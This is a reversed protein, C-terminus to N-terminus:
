AGGIPAPVNQSIAQAEALTKATQAAVPAADLVNGMMAQAEAAEEEQAMVEPDKMARAPVGNVEAVIRATEKMDFGAYVSPDIQALPALTEFTRLISVAEESRAARTMPSVYEIALSERKQQLYEALEPPMEPHLGQRFLIGSERRIMPGLWETQLRGIVPATMQGQQQAILMAQTATMNPNELLVRFYIGMFGDDIQNRTDAIMELGLGVDVGANWPHALRNGQEDVAGYNRSGPTLDFESIDDSPLLVPPDVAMNAAEITTRRMEQLMSIDPLLQIAPSRGYTERTSLSYRSVIYPQEHYGDEQVVQKGDTFIYYGVFPMGAKDLMGKEYDERPMVAHLFEFKEHIHGAEFRKRIKEPTEKGFLEVAQKASLMFKRHVTDIVGSWNESIYIESLHITKYQIGGNKRPEVLMCGTGFAGLSLRKEHAQSAFNGRPSYRTDWLLQNLDELYVKVSHSEDLDDDGTTLTHWTATRPMLGAEIAAAFKDLAAMPFADYQRQNRQTGPSHKNRFDDSRPLVLRAVNEWMSEWNGRQAEMEEQRRMIGSVDVM